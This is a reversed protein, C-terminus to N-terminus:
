ALSAGFGQPCRAQAGGRAWLAGVAGCCQVGWAGWELTIACPLLVGLPPFGGADARHSHGCCGGGPNNLGGWACWTAGCSTASAWVAGAHDGSQEDEAQPAGHQERRQAWCTIPCTPGRPRDGAALTPVLPRPCSGSCGHTASPHGTGRCGSVARVWWTGAAAPHDPPLCRQGVGPGEDGGDLHVPLVEAPAEEHPGLPHHRRSVAGDGPSRREPPPVPEPARGLVRRPGTPTSAGMRPPNRPAPAAGWGGRGGEGTRGRPSGARRHGSVTGRPRLRLGETRTTSPAWRSSRGSSDWCTKPTSSDM